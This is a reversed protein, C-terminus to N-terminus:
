STPAGVVIAVPGQDAWCRQVADAFKGIDEPGELTYYPVGWTELTPELLRVARLTNDRNSKSVDRGFQGILLLTPVQADLALAKLSNICAFLGNNQILLMPRHGTIHLGVNIAMAEDETCVTVLRPSSEEALLALVTKLHTDPVTLVHTIGASKIERVILDAAIPQAVAPTALTTM